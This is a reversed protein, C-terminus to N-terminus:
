RGAGAECTGIAENFCQGSLCQFAATCMMNCMMPAPTGCVAPCSSGCDNWVQGGCDAGM